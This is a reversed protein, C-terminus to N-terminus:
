GLKINGVKDEFSKFTPSNRMTPMSISQRISYNGFSNSFPLARMDGLKRSLATGMTSFAATTKQGAVSLTESTKKYAESQAIDDLTASATLYANSTQVDQWGKTLNQKLENLPSLGLKRKLDASHREKALLVQRLTNIEEEVKGLESYLEEAEEETLGPPLTNVAAVGTAGGEMSVGTLSDVGGTPGLGKNPSNLNIDQGVPDM